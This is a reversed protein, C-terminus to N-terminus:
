TELRRTFREITAALRAELELGGATAGAEMYRKAQLGRRKISARIFVAAILAADDGERGTWDLDLDGRSARLKVWRFIPGLPPATAGVARGEEQVLSHPPTAFVVETISIGAAGDVARVGRINIGGVLEGTFIPTGQKAAISAVVGAASVDKAIDRELEATNVRVDAALERLERFDYRAHLTM